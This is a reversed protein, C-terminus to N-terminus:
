REKRDHKAELKRLKELLKERMLPGLTDRSLVAILSKLVSVIEQIDDNTEEERKPIARKCNLPSIRDIMMPHLMKGDDKCYYWGGEKVCNGCELCSYVGNPEKQRTRAVELPTM